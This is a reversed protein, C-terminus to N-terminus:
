NKVERYEFAVPGTATIGWASLVYKPQEGYKNYKSSDEFPVLNSLVRAEDAADVTWGDKFSIVINDRPPVVVPVDVGRSILSVAWRREDGSSNLVIATYTGPPIWAAYQPVRTPRNNSHLPRTAGIQAVLLTAFFGLVGVMVLSRHM